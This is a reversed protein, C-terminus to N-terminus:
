AHPEKGNKNGNTGAPKLAPPKPKMQERGADIQEKTVQIGLEALKQVLAEAPMKDWPITESPGKEVPQAPATPVAEPKPPHLQAMTAAVSEPTTEIGLQKLKQVQAEPPMKDWAMTESLPKEGPAPQPKINQKQADAYAMVNMYGLPNEVQAEMGEEDNAWRTCRLLAVQANDLPGPKITPFSAMLQQMMQPDPQQDGPVGVSLLEEIVKSTKEWADYGMIFFEPYGYIRRLLDLNEFDQFSPQLAPNAMLRDLQERKDRFLVPRGEDAEAYICFNGKRIAIPDIRKSKKGPTALMAPKETSKAFEQVALYITRQHLSRLRRYFLAVRGQSKEIQQEFGRATEQVVNELGIGTLAPAIGTLFQGVMGVSIDNLRQVLSQPVDVAPSAWFFNGLPTAGATGGAKSMTAPWFQFPRNEAKALAERNVVKDEHFITPAGHILYEHYLNSLINIQDQVTIFSDGLGPRKTGRGEAAFEIAWRDDMREPIAACYTGGLYHMCVGDPFKDILAQRRKLDNIQFFTSPKLWIRTLTTVTDLAETPIRPPVNARVAVRFLRSLIADDTIDTSPSIDDLWPYTALGKSRAIDLDFKLHDWECQKNGAEPLSIDLGGHASIVVQSKPIKQGDPGTMVEGTEPDTQWGFTHGDTVTRTYTAMLGGTWGHYSYQALLMPADNTRAVLNSALTAHKAAELDERSWGDPIFVIPPVNESAVTAFAEQYAKYFNLVWDDEEVEDDYAPLFQGKSSAGMWMEGATDWMILQKGLTYLEAEGARYIQMRRAYLLENAKKKVIGLLDKYLEPQQTKLYANCAVPDPSALGAAFEMPVINKASALKEQLKPDQAEQPVNNPQDPM